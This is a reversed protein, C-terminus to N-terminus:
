NCSVQNTISPYEGVRISKVKKGDTEFIIGRTHDPEDVYLTHWTPDAANPAIRVRSGYAKTVDGEASGLGVGAETKITLPRPDSGYFDVNIRTLIKQEIVYSIGFPEVEPATVVSCGHNAYPNYPLASHVARELRDIQMGVRVNGLGDNTLLPDAGSATGCSAFLVVFLLARKM